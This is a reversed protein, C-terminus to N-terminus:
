GNSQMNWHVLKIQRDVHEDEDAHKDADDDDVDCKPWTTALVTVVALATRYCQIDKIQINGFLDVHVVAIDCTTGIQDPKAIKDVQDSNDVQTRWSPIQFVVEICHASLRSMNTVAGKIKLTPGDMWRLGVLAMHGASVGNTPLLTQLMAMYTEKNVRKGFPQPSFLNSMVTMSHAYELVTAPLAVVRAQQVISRFSNTIGNENLKFHFLLPDRILM